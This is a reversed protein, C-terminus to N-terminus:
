RSKQAQSVAHNQKALRDILAQLGQQQISASFTSRYSQVLSIGDIVVDYVKWHDGTLYLKYIVTVPQHGPPFVRSYVSAFPKNLTNRNPQFRITADPYLTLTKGYTRIMLQKFESVFKERQQPTATRWYHGLVLMSMTKIDVIPLIYKDILASIVAPKALEAKSTKQLAALLEDAAQQVVEQPPTTVNATPSAARSATPLLLVSFLGIMTLWSKLVMKKNM